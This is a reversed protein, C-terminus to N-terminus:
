PIIIHTWYGSEDYLVTIQNDFIEEILTSVVSLELYFDNNSTCMINDTKIDLPAYSIYLRNEEIKVVSIDKEDELLEIIDKQNLLEM